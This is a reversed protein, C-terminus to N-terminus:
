VLRERVRAATKGYAREYLWVGGSVLVLAAAPAVPPVVWILTVLVGAVAAAGLLYAAYARRIEPPKPGSLSPFAGHYRRYWGLFLGALAVLVVVIPLIAWEPGGARMWAMNACYAAAWLGTAPVYWRPTPPYAVYPAAEARELRRLEERQDSEM